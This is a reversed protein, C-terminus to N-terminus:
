VAVKAPLFESVSSVGALFKNRFQSGSEKAGVKSDCRLDPFVVGGIEPM